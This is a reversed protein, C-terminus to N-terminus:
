DSKRQGEHTQGFSMQRKMQPHGDANVTGAPVTLDCFETIFQPDVTWQAKISDDMLNTNDEFGDGGGGGTYNSDVVRMHLGDSTAFLV